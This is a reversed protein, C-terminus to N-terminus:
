GRLRFLIVATGDKPSHAVNRLSLFHTRGFPQMDEQSPMVTALRITTGILLM